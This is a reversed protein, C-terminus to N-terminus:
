NKIGGGLLDHNKQLFQKFRENYKWPNPTVFCKSGMDLSRKSVDNNDLTILIHMEVNVNNCEMEKHNSPKGLTCHTDQDELPTGGDLGGITSTHVVFKLLGVLQRSMGGKFPLQTSKLKLTVNGCGKTNV